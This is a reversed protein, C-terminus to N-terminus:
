WITTYITFRSTEQLIIELLVPDISRRQQRSGYQSSHLLNHKESLAIAQEWKLKLILNYDAEYIHINRIRSVFRNDEDKFLCISHVNKWREFPIASQLSINLLTMYTKLVAEQQHELEAREKSDDDYSLTHPALLAKYHGLHLGSPSTTTKEKWKKIKRTWDELTIIDKVTAQPYTSINKLFKEANIRIDKPVNNLLHANQKYQQESWSEEFEVNSNNDIHTRFYRFKSFPTHDAQTFHGMNFDAIHKAIQDM